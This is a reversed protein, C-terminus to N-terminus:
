VALYENLWNQRIQTEHLSSFHSHEESISEFEEQASNLYKGNQFVLKRLYIKSLLTHTSSEMKLLGRPSEISINELFNIIERKKSLDGTVSEIAQYILHASDYGLVSFTDAVRGVRKEFQRCFDQNLPNNLDNAWSLCSKASTATTGVIQTNPEELMYASCVMPIDQSLGSNYYSEIIQIAKNGCAMAYVFDPKTNKIDEITQPMNLEFNPADAMSFHTIKGGASEVGAHAAFHSDFGADLLTPVAMGKKGFAKVAWAGMFYNSQFYNLSNRFVFASKQDQKVVNGGITAAILLSKRTDFLDKIEGIVCSNLIGIMFDIGDAIILKSIITAIKKVEYPIEQSIIEIERDAVKYNQKELYIKVGEELNMGLVPHVNSPPHIVGIKIKENM